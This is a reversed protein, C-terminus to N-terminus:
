CASAAENSSSFPLRTSAEIEDSLRMGKLLRLARFTERAIAFAVLLVIGVWPLLFSSQKLDTPGDLELLSWVIGVGTLALLGITLRGIVPPFQAADRRTLLRVLESWLRDEEYEIAPITDTARLRRGSSM